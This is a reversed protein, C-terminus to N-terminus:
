SDRKRFKWVARDNGTATRNVGFVLEYIISGDDYVDGRQVIQKFIDERFDTRDQLPDFGALDNLENTLWELTKKLAQAESNKQRLLKWENKLVELEHTLDISLDDLIDWAENKTSTDSLERLRSNLSTIENKLFHMRETEWADLEREAIAGEADKSFQAEKNKMELLMAMFSHQIAEERYSHSLCKRDKIRGDAVRCRWAPYSYQTNNNTSVFKRRVFPEGCTGCYLINSFPSRNSQKQGMDEKSRYKESRRKMENQVANWDQKSVIAPHNDAIFYQPQHGQNRIRKHTLFDVTVHKQMLIDGCYKENKLIQRVSGAIWKTNGKGTKIGEATLRKAIAGTGYGELYERYIRRVTKAQEENIVLNGNAGTDYGIFYRTAIHFKGQQFRKQNAWRVNESINRSEDQALSSLITLLLESKSDLTDINEKEFYVGVPSPLGKLMRIQNLCDLTNRAFRSVSKTIIMDIKRDKCDQIMRQFDTRNKISTGSIGEDAYVGKFEWDVNSKIYDEYYKVQLDYSTQQDEESTSVRCYACVRKKPKENANNNRDVKAPIIRVTAKPKLDSNQHYAITM